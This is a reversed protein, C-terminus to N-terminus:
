GTGRVEEKALEPSFPRGVPALQPGGRRDLKRGIQFAARILAPAGSSCTWSRLCTPPVSAAAVPALRFSSIARRPCELVLAARM